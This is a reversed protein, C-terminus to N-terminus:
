PPGGMERRLDLLAADRPNAALATALAARAGATEGLAARIRVLMIWADVLQPDLTAAEQFATQALQWNRIQLGIGAIQLQSEPFDASTALAAGLERRAAALAQVGPTEAVPAADILARAASIRVARVPDTLVPRLTALRQDPSLGGFGRAAAARVLPDPDGLLPVLRAAAAADAGPTILEIASARVIGAGSGEAIALLEATQAAPDRRAAAFIAAYGPQRHAPDPFREAIEAAAWDPGRDAHCDACADPAGTAALDPRPIRFFHDRRADVGMYTREPMHCAACQAGAGGKPHFTHAPGDYDALRLSPFAANGALSHCQTCVANGEARLTASHPEHCNSCRVGSAYMKSQLFSGYEYNESLVGGDPEYVGPRLLSLGFSDHFPTGPLPNGDGFAERRAHCGACQQIEAEASASLDVTLGHRTLGLGPAAGNRRWAVHAAGPGHCSECGVGIEAHVPAYTRTAPDYNRAYGTAHCEACRAEWSKYPGTWHMGDGPPPLTDLVPYWRRGEIDWGIDFAQTRGPAPELLYQQLPEWGAVGVVPFAQVVGDGGATEIMFREGDRYFRARTAGDDYIAEDFDGRVTEPSPETWALDHHSGTWAVSQAAHCYSCAASGLYAPLAAETEAAGARAAPLVLGIALLIAPLHRFAGFRKLPM